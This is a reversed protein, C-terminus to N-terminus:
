LVRDALQTEFFGLCHFDPLVIIGGRVLRKTLRFALRLERGIAGAHVGRFAPFSAYQFPRRRYKKSAPVPCSRSVVEIPM